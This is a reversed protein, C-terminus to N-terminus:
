FAASVTVVGTADCYNTGGFCENKGLDTDTYLASITFVKYSYSIGTNWDFWSPTGWALKDDVWTRGAGGTLSFGARLPISGALALHYEDGSKGFFEPSYAGQVSLSAVKFDYGLQAVVEGYPYHFGKEHGPYNYYIGGLKWSWNDVTGQLGGYTDLELDTDDGATGFDVNSGWAGAYIGVSDNLKYAADFGGQIAPDTSTQSQGRWVYDSTMAVNGSLTLREDAAEQAALLGADLMMALGVSRALWKWKNRHDLMLNEMVVCEVSRRQDHLGQAMMSHTAFHTAIGFTKPRQM